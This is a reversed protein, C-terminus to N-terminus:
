SGDFAFERASATRHVVGVRYINNTKIRYLCADHSQDAATSGSGACGVVSLSAVMTLILGLTKM